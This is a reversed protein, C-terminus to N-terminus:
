KIECWKLNTNMLTIKSFLSVDYIQCSLRAELRFTFNKKQKNQKLKKNNFICAKKRCITLTVLVSMEVYHM